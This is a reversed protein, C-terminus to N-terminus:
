ACEFQLSPTARHDDSLQAVYDGDRRQYDAHHQEALSV